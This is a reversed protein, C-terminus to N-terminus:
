IINYMLQEEILFFFYEIYHTKTYECFIYINHISLTYALVVLKQVNENVRFSIGYGNATM